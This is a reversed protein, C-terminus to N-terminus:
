DVVWPVIMGLEEFIESGSYEKSFNKRLSGERLEPLSSKSFSLRSWSKM